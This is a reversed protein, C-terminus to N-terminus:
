RKGDKSEQAVPTGKEDVYFEADTPFILQSIQQHGEFKILSEGVVFGMNTDQNLRLCNEPVLSKLADVLGSILMQKERNHVMPVEYINKHKERSLMAGSYTPLFKVGANINLLRFKATIPLDGNGCESTLKDIFEQHLVSSFFDPLPFNLVMLSWVYGLYDFSNKFDLQTLSTALKTKLANEFELPTYNLSALSMVVAAIDQSRCIDQNKLLWEAIADILIPERYKLFALSTIISGILSSKELPEKMAVQIDDCIKGILVPDPFNLSAMAYLVDACQKLELPEEKSSMNYALSRLLPTSRRKRQSLSKMVKVMQPLTISAVLKAAEDDGTVGLVVNLDDTRFGAIKKMKNGNNNNNNNAGNGNGNKLNLTRGLVRCLKTFRSDSEFENLKAKNMSSWEALISVIQFM